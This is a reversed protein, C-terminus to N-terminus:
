GTGRRMAVDSSARRMANGGAQRVTAVSLADFVAAGEVGGVGAGAPEMGADVALGAIAMVSAAAAEM